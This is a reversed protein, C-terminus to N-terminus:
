YTQTMLEDKIANLCKILETYSPFLKKEASPMLLSLDLDASGRVALGNVSSGYIPLQFEIRGM